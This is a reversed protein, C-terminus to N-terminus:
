GSSRITEGADVTSLSRFDGVDGTAGTVVRFFFFESESNKLELLALALKDLVPETEATGFSFALVLTVLLGTAPGACASLAFASVIM